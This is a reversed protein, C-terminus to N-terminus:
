LLVSAFPPGVTPLDEVSKEKRKDERPDEM